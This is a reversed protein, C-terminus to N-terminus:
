LVMSYRVTDVTAGEWRGEIPVEIKMIVLLLFLFFEGDCDLRAPGIERM